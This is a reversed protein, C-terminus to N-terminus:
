FPIPSAEHVHTYEGPQHPACPACLIVCCAGQKAVHQAVYMLHGLLAKNGETAKSLRTMGARDKPIVLFHVPAQPNIDRFALSQNDEYIIDASIEKSVIKDFLTPGDSQAQRCASRHQLFRALCQRCCPVHRGHVQSAADRFLV